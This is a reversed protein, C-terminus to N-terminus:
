ERAPTASRAAAASMTVAAEMPMSTRRTTAKVQTMAAMVPQMLPTSIALTFVSFGCRPSTASLTSDTMIRPPMFEM